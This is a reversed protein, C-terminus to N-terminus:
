CSRSHETVAILPHVPVVSDSPNDCIVIIMIIIILSRLYRLYTTLGLESKSPM